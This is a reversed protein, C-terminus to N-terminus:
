YYFESNFAVVTKRKSNNTKSSHLIHAPFTIIQGEKVKYEYEKGGILISTKFNTDPLEVFYVNTLNTKPHTHYCHSSTENYQQFWGGNIEWKKANFYKQQEGMMYCSVHKYFYELYKREFKKPLNWDTKSIDEFPNNPIEDILSLIMSKHREHEPVDYIILETKLEKIHM